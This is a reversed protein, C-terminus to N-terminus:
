KRTIHYREMIVKVIVHRTSTKGRMIEIDELLDKIIEQEDEKGESVPNDDLMDWFGNSNLAAKIEPETEEAHDMISQFPHKKGEVPLVKATKEELAGRLREIEAEAKFCREFWSVVAKSLREIEAEKESLSSQLSATQLAAYEEMAAIIVHDEGDLAGKEYYESLIQEATKKEM